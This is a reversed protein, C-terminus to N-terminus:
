LRNTQWTYSCVMCETQDMSIVIASSWYDTIDYAFSRKVKM